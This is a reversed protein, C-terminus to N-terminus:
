VRATICTGARRVACNRLLQYSLLARAGGPQPQTKTPAQHTYLPPIAAPEQEGRKSCQNIPSCHSLSTVHLPPCHAPCWVHLNTYLPKHIISQTSHTTYLANHVVSQRCHKIHLTNHLGYQTCRGTYLTKHVVNQTCHMIYCMNHVTHQTCHITCIANDAAYQTCISGITCLNFITCQRCFITHM